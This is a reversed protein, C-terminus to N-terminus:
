KLDFSGYFKVFSQTLKRTKNFPVLPTPNRLNMSCNEQSMFCPRLPHAIDNRIKKMLKICQNDLRNTLQTPNYSRNALKSARKEFSSLKQLHFSSIDCIAPWCYSIHTFVLALYFRWLIEGRFGSKYLLSIAAMSQSCKKIVYNHHFTSKFDNTFYIGLLKLSSSQSLISNNIFIDPISYNHPNINMVSSKKSNIFLKNQLAWSHLHNLEEQSHDPLNQPVHHVITLDDAYLIAKSRESVVNFSNVVMSFLFPGLISGQPVGSSCVKWESSLTDSLHVRQARNSLFSSIWSCTSQPLNFNHNATHLITDHSVKDFAKLFDIAICRIYSASSTICNLTHLRFLTLANSTGLYKSPIFAFQNRNFYETSQPILFFKLFVKELVKSPFPLLSIPRFSTKDKPLPIVNARKWKLPFKCLQISKNIIFSLPTIILFAFKRYIFGPIDDPGAGKSKISMLVKYIEHEEIAAFSQINNTPHNCNHTQSPEFVSSFIENINSLSDKNFHSQNKTQKTLSSVHKWINKPNSHSVKNFFHRKSISIENILQEKITIYKINHRKHYARDKEKMLHKIKPTIWPQDKNSMLVSKFPFCQNFSHFLVEQFVDVLNDIDYAPSLFNSWSINALTRGFYAMNKPSYDRFSVRRKVITKQKSQFFIVNHDSRGLPPLKQLNIVCSNKLQKPLCIVDITNEKRTAFNVVQSLNHYNLFDDFCKRLDNVDGTIFLHEDPALHQEIAQTLTDLVTAHHKINGWYPHYVCFLLMKFPQIRLLLIDSKSSESQHILIQDAKEKCWVIVGGGMSNRDSRYINYTSIQLLNSSYNEQLWSETIVVIDPSLKNCRLM